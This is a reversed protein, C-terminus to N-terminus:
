KTMELVMELEADKGNLFDEVTREVQIDPLVGRDPQETMPYSGFIPIDVEVKSNPLTLFFIGGGNTGKLNGGTPQGVLTAIKNAKAAKALMFTASSNSADVLLWVEAKTAKGTAQIVQDKASARKSEFLGNEVPRVKGSYDYFSKDWTGLYPRLRQPIAEYAQLFRNASYTAKTKVVYKALEASVEDMGGSNGRIDIVIDKVKEEKFKQFAEAMFKKWKLTMKYTVFTGLKLYGVRDDIIRYEWLEDYNTPLPGYRKQMMEFRGPRSISEVSVSKEMESEFDFVVLDFRGDKPPYLLPFVVDLFEKSGIGTLELRNLLMPENSGDASVYNKMNSIIDDVSIGNISKVEVREGISKEASLDMEVLMRKEIIRFTFPLKDARNLLKQHIEDPQNWPSTFTHGCQIAAAFKTFFLFAEDLTMDETLMAKTTDFHLQMAEESQYKHLGPHVTKLADALIEFDAKLNELSIKEQSFAITPLLALGCIALRIIISYM